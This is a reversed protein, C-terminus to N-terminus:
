FAALIQEVAKSVSVPLIGGEFECIHPDGPCQQQCFSAHPLIVESRNGLPGWLIPSCAPLPCFLSVTPVRLGAALHMPGTSASVLVDLLSLIAITERLNGGVIDFVRQPDVAALSKLVGDDAKSGTVVVQTGPKELIQGVCERYRNINWNPASRGSVPHVGVLHGGPLVGRGRLKQRAAEKEEPTVIVEVDLGDERAGIKRGLDLCYDAEHRLPIYRHRTVVKTLTLVHDLRTEVSVRLPIGAFFLMWSLRSKPLLILAADFRHKRIVRVQSLFGKVGAQGGEPDDLILEDVNPNHALVESAYPRVMAVIHAKPYTKRLARLLPTALVVDGIRDTRVVLIRQFVKASM